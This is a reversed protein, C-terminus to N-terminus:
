ITRAEIMRVRELDDAFDIEVCPLDSIDVPHYDVRDLSLEMAKEFYDNDQCSNLCEVLVHWSDSAIRNVGVAEGLAGKVQKSIEAITGRHSITYKIEEDATRANNVAVCTGHRNVMRSVVDEVLYVDGNLWITDHGETRLLGKLLSKSTNTKEYHHNFVYNLDPYKDMILEKKFGVVVFIDQHRFHRSLASLQVDLITKGPTIEVLAKPMQMQLRSGIGAALIIAKM